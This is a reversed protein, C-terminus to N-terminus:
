IWVPKVKRTGDYAPQGPFLGNFTHLILTTYYDYIQVAASPVPVSATYIVSSPVRAYLGEDSHAPQRWYPM